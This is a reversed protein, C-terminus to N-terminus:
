IINTLQSKAARYLEQVKSAKVWSEIKHGQGRTRPLQQYEEILTFFAVVDHLPGGLYSEEFWWQDVIYRWNLNSLETSCCRSYTEDLIRTLESLADRISKLTTCRMTLAQFREEGLCTSLKNYANEINELDAVCIKRNHAVRNRSVEIEFLTTDLVAQNQFFNKFVENWNDKQVMIKRLDPFDLYYIPHHSVLETWKAKRELAVAERYKQLIDGPLRNKFWHAGYRGSLEEIILERTANEIAFMLAYARLNAAPVNPEALKTEM